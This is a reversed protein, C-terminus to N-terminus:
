HDLLLFYWISSNLDFMIRFPRAYIFLPIWFLPTKFFNFFFLAVVMNQTINDSIIISEEHPELEDLEEPVAGDPGPTEGSPTADVPSM